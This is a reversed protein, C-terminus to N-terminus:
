RRRIVVFSLALVSLIFTFTSSEPVAQATASNYEVRLAMPNPSNDLNTIAFHIVNSGEQFYDSITITDFDFDEGAVNTIQFGNHFIQYLNDAAISLNISASDPILGDLSYEYYFNHVGASSPNKQSSYVNSIWKSTITNAIWPGNPSIPFELNHVKSSPGSASGYKYNSDEEGYNSLEGTNYMNPINLLAGQLTVGFTCCM